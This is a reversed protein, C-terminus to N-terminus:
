LVQTQLTKSNTFQHIFKPFAKSAIEENTLWSGSKFNLAPQHNLEVYIFYGRIIQHTLIQKKAAIISINKIDSIHLQQLLRNKIKEINWEPNATTEELYFEHLNQWIDKATRQQVFIKNNFSFIFYSFWREKKIITKQKVPLLHIKNKNFAICTKNLLCIKCLPVPKCVTAGFDMISQNYEGPNNKDLCEQALKAFNKKGETSDVPLDIGFYRALIRLVNGDVVAYPLDFCFSAIASATYSGIGKLSLITNYDSPFNGAFKEDIMRATHLLNKCRSYYGLGEWLKFVAEDKANSLHTITPYQEVFKNYYNWGQEVRTQQLIIESLWVKYPNKEGKWPMIRKNKEHHWKLLLERFKTKRKM